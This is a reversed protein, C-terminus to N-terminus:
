EEKTSITSSYYVIITYDADFADGIVSDSADEETVWMWQLAYKVETHAPIIVDELEIENADVWSNQNGYLYGNTDSLRYKMPINYKNLDEFKIDFSIAIDNDNAITFNYTYSKGPYLVKDKKEPGLINWTETIKAGNAETIIIESDIRMKTSQRFFLFATLVGIIAIVLAIYVWIVARKHNYVSGTYVGDMDFVNFKSDMQAVITDTRSDVVNYMVKSNKFDGISFRHESNNTTLDKIFLDSKTLIQHEKIIGVTRGKRDKINNYVRNYELQVKFSKNFRSM